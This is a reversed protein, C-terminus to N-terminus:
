KNHIELIFGFSNPERVRSSSVSCKGCAIALRRAICRRMPMETVSHEPCHVPAYRGKGNHGGCDPSSEGFNHDNDKAKRVQEGIAETHGNTVIESGLALALFNLSSALGLALV